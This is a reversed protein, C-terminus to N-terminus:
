SYEKQAKMRYGLIMYADKAQGTKISCVLKAEGLIGLQLKLLILSVTGFDNWYKTSSAAPANLIVLSLNIYKNWLFRAWLSNSTLFNWASKMRSAKM